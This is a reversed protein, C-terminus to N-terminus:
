DLKTVGRMMCILKRIKAVGIKMQQAIKAPLTEAQYVMFFITEEQGDFESDSKLHQYDQIARHAIGADLEGEEALTSLIIICVCVSRGNEGQIYVSYIYILIHSRMQTRM